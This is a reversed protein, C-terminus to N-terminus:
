QFATQGQLYVINGDIMTMEPILLKDGTKREGSADMFEVKKKCSRLLTLNAMKGCKLSGDREKLRAASSPNVTVAAFIQPLSLGMNWFKSMVFPLDKMLPDNAYTRQTADSSIIDPLLGQELTNEAVKFDFNKSGNGVELFVGREKAEFFASSIKGSEGLITNGQGHYMHSYIDGPRLERVITEAEEPPDTTHVCLPLGLQEAFDLSRGLPKMGEELAINKSLRLKLGLINEPYKKVLQKLQDLQLYKEALPENIGGGPQGIPSVNIFSKVPMTRSIIDQRYMMEYGISGASGMDLVMTSGSSLLLDANVGFKSGGTFIHTHFDLMDSLIYAGDANIVREAAIEAREMESSNGVFDIKGLESIGINVEEADSKDPHIFCANKILFKVNGSRRKNRICPATADAGCPM